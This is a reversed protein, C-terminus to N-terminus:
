ENKIVTRGILEFCNDSWTFRGDDAKIKYEWTIDDYNLKKNTIVTTQGICDTMINNYGFKCKKVSIIKVISGVNFKGCGKAYLFNKIDM